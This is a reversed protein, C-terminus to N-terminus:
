DDLEAEVLPIVRQLREEYRQLHFARTESHRLIVALDSAGQQYLLEQDSICTAFNASESKRNCAIDVYAGMVEMTKLTLEDHRLLDEKIYDNRFAALSSLERRLDLDKMLLADGSEAMLQYSTPSFSRFVGRVFVSMVQGIGLPLKRDERSSFVGIGTSLGQIDNKCDHLNMRCTKLEYELEENIAELYTDLKRSDKMNQNCREAGFAIFLSVIILSVQTLYDKFNKM